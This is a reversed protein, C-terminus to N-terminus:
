DIFVTVVDGGTALVTTSSDALGTTIWYWIRGGNNIPDVTSSPAVGTTPIQITLQPVTTGAVPITTAPQSAGAFTPMATGTGEWYFKIYYTAANGAGTATLGYFMSASGGALLQAAVAATTTNIKVARAM